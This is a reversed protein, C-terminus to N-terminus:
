NSADGDSGMAQEPFPETGGRTAVYVWLADLEEPLIIDGWAPMDGRGNMVSDEFRARDDQPFTRLDFSSVGASVMDAGHCKACFLKYAALGDEFLPHPEAAVVPAGLLALAAALTPKRIM